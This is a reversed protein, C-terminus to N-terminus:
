DARFVLRPSKVAVGGNYEARVFTEFWVENSGSGVQRNLKLTPTCGGDDEYSGLHFPDEGSNSFERDGSGWRHEIIPSSGDEKKWSRVEESYGPYEDGDEDIPSVNFHIKEGVSLTGGGRKIAQKNPSPKRGDEGATVNHIRPQSFGFIVQEDPM